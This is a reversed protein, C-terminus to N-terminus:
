DSIATLVYTPTCSLNKFPNDVAPTGGPFAATVAFRYQTGTALNGVTALLAGNGTAITTADNIPTATYASVPASWTTGNDTSHSETIALTLKGAVTADGTLATRKIYLSATGGDATVTCGITGALSHGPMIKAGPAFSITDNTLTLNGTTFTNSLNASSATFSASSAALAAAALVLIALTAIVMV